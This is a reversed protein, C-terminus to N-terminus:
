FFLNIQPSHVCVVMVAFDPINKADFPDEYDKSPGIPKGDVGILSSLGFIEVEVLTTFWGTGYRIYNYIERLLTM